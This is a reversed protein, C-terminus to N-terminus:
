KTGDKGRYRVKIPKTEVKNDDAKYLKIVEEISKGKIKKIIDDVIKAAFENTEFNEIIDDYEESDPDIKKGAKLNVLENNIIHDQDEFWYDTYWERDTWDKVVMWLAYELFKKFALQEIEKKTM